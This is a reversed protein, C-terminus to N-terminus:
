SKLRESMEIFQEHWLHPRFGVTQHDIITKTDNMAGYDLIRGHDKIQQGFDLIRLAHYVNKKCSDIYKDRYSLNAFHWSSSATTIIKKALEKKVLKQLKFEMSNKLIKEEPLFVCELANIQYNNLADLFGSRSYCVGQVLWDDSSIANDKFAGSPLMSGKFVVVFDDDSEANATGYVRSGYPYINLVKSFDLKLKECIEEPTHRM